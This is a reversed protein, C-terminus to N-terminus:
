SLKELVSLAATVPCEADFVQVAASRVLFGKDNVLNVTVFDTNAAHDELLTSLARKLAGRFFTVNVEVTLKGGYQRSRAYGRNLALLRVDSTATDHIDTNADLWDEHTSCDLPAFKGGPTIWGTSKTTTTM